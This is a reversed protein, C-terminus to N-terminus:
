SIAVRQESEACSYSTRSRTEFVLVYLRPCLVRSKPTCRLGVPLRQPVRVPRDARRGGASRGYARGALRGAGDLLGGGAGGQVSGEAGPGSPAPGPCLCPSGRKYRLPLSSLFLVPLSTGQSCVAISTAWRAETSLKLVSGSVRIRFYPDLAASTLVHTELRM